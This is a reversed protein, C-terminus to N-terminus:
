TPSGGDHIIRSGGKDNQTNWHCSFVVSFPLPITRFLATDNVRFPSIPLSPLPEHSATRYPVTVRPFFQTSADGVALSEFLSVQRARRLQAPRVWMWSFTKEGRDREKTGTPTPRLLFFFFRADSRVGKEEPKSWSHNM